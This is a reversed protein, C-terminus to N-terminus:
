GKTRGARADHREGRERDNTGRARRREPTWWPAGFEEAYDMAASWSLATGGWRDSSADLSGGFSADAAYADTSTARDGSRPTARAALASGRARELSRGVGNRRERRRNASAFPRRRRARALRPVVVSAVGVCDVCGHADDRAPSSASAAPRSTVRATPRDTPRDTPRALALSRALREIRRLSKVRLYRFLNRIACSHTRFFLIIATLETM